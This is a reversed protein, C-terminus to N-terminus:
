RTVGHFDRAPITRLGALLKVLATAVYMRFVLNTISLVYFLSVIALTNDSGPALLGLLDDPWVIFLDCKAKVIIRVM